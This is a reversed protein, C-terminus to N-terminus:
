RPSSSQVSATQPQIYDIGEATPFAGGIALYAFFCPYTSNDGVPDDLTEWFGREIVTVVRGPQEPTGRHDTSVNWKGTLLSCAQHPITHLQAITSM